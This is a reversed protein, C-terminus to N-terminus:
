LEFRERLRPPLVPCAEAPRRFLRGRANSIADYVRDRLAAPVLRIAIAGLRWLGGLRQGIEIFAASRALLTGDPLVLVVSDPLQPRVEEPVAAEFSESQIPAYRFVADRDESLLLRVSHHCLGCGGDYYVRAIGEPSRRPRVWAPDFTFAHLVLMGLTLDM